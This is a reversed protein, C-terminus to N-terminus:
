GENRAYRKQKQKEKPSDTSIGCFQALQQTVSVEAEHIVNDIVKKYRKM